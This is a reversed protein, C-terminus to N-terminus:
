KKDGMVIVVSDYMEIVSEPKTAFFKDVAIKVGQTSVYDHILIISGEGMKNYFFKLSKRTSEYTDVDLHVFSFSKDKISNSTEEPFRGPYISVKKYNKLYNTIDDLDARYQGKQLYVDIKDVDCLGQFTDFLHIKKNKETECILKASAGQYVGVEAIDGSLPSVAKICCILLYANGASMQMKVEGKIKNILELNYRRKPELYHTVFDYDLAIFYATIRKIIKRRAIWKLIKTKM